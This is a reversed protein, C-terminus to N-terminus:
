ASNLPFPMVTDPHTRLRRRRRHRASNSPASAPDEMVSIAYLHPRLSEAWKLRNNLAEKPIDGVCYRDERRSPADSSYNREGRTFCCQQPHPNRILSSVICFGWTVGEGMTMGGPACSVLYPILPSLAGISADAYDDSIALANATRETKDFCKRSM